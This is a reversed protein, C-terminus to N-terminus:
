GGPWDHTFHVCLGWECVRDDGQRWGMRWRDADSYAYVHRGDALAEPHAVLLTAVAMDAEGPVGRGYYADLVPPWTAGQVYRNAMTRAVELRCDGGIPGCEGSLIVAVAAILQLIGM